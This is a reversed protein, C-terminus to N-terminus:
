KIIVKTGIPTNEFFIEAMKRPLRICGHSEPASTVIGEHMWIGGSTIQMGFNMEAGKYHGGAPIPHGVTYEEILTNGAADVISGYSASKHDIDKSIISFTGRPTGHGARGSSIASLGVQREGIYYKAQQLQTDVVILHPGTLGVPKDWYGDSVADKASSFLTDPRFLYGGGLASTIENQTSCSVLTLVLSLISIRKMSEESAKCRVGRTRGNHVM